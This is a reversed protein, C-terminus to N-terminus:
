LRSTMQDLLSAEVKGYSKDKFYTDQLHDYQHRIHPVRQRLIRSYLNVARTKRKKPFYFMGINHRFMKIFGELVCSATIIGLSVDALTFCTACPEIVIGIQFQKWYVIVETLSLHMHHWSFFVLLGHWRTDM